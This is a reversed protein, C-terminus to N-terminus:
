AVKPANPVAYVGLSGLVALVVTTWDIPHGTTVATVIIGAGAAAAVLAKRYRGAFAAAGKVFNGM